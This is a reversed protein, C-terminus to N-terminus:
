ARFILSQEGRLVELEAALRDQREKAEAAKRKEASVRARLRQAENAALRQTESLQRSAALSAAKAASRVMEVTSDAKRRAM